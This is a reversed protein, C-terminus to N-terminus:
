EGNIHSPDTSSPPEALSSPVPTKFSELWRSKFLGWLGGLLFLQLVIMIQAHPFIKLNYIYIWDGGLGAISVIPYCVLAYLCQAIAFYYLIERLTRNRTLPIAPIALLGLLISVLNGSLAIWWIEVPSFNGRPIIYGWFIRWQFEAVQGGLQWTAIAHGWEHLLVGLPIFLFIAIRQAILSQLQREARANPTNQIESWFSKRHKWALRITDLSIV